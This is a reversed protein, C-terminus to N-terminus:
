KVGLKSKKSKENKDAKKSTKSTEKKSVEKKESKTVLKVNSVHIPHQIYVFNETNTESKKVARKRVNVGEVLVKEIKTKVELVTGETGKYKGTTVKVKDGKKIKM